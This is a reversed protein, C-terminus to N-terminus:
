HFPPLVNQLPSGGGHDVLHVTFLPSSSHIQSCPGIIIRYIRSYSWLILNNCSGLEIITSHLNTCRPPLASQLVGHHRRNHRYDLISFFTQATTLCARVSTVHRRYSTCRSRRGPAQSQHGDWPERFSVQIPFHTCNRM